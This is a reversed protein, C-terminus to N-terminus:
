FALSLLVISGCICANKNDSSAVGGKGNLWVKADEMM